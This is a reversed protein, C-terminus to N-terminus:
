ITPRQKPQDEVYIATIIQSTAGCNPCKEEVVGFVYDGDKHSRTHITNCNSCKLQTIPNFTVGRTKTYVNESRISDFLRRM